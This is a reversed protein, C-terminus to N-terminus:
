FIRRGDWHLILDGIFIVRVPLHTVWELKKFNLHFDCLMFDVVKVRVIWGVSNNALEVCSETCNPKICSSLHHLFFFVESAQLESRARQLWTQCVWYPQSQSTRYTSISSFPFVQFGADPPLEEQFLVSLPEPRFPWNHVHWFLGQHLGRAM